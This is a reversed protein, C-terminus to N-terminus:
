KQVKNNIPYHRTVLCNKNCNNQCEEMSDFAEVGCCGTIFEECQNTDQNYFYLVYEMVLEIEPIIYCGEDLPPNLISQVLVIDQVNIIDDQNMDGSNIFGGDLILSVLSVIDLVNIMQDENIDGLLSEECDSTNQEGMIKKMCVM